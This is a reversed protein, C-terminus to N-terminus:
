INLVKKQYYTNQEILAKEIESRKQLVCELQDKDNVIKIYKLPHKPGKGVKNILFQISYQRYENRKMKKIM